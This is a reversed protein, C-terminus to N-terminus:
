CNMIFVVDFVYKDSEQLMTSMFIKNSKERVLSFRLLGYWERIGEALLDSQRALIFEVM